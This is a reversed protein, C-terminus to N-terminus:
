HRIIFMRKRGNGILIVRMYTIEIKGDFGIISLTFKSDKDSTHRDLRVCCDNIYYELVYANFCTICQIDEMDDFFKDWASKEEM